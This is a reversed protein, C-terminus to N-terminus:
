EMCGSPMLAQRNEFVDGIEVGPVEGHFPAAVGDVDTNAMASVTAVVSTLVILGTVKPCIEGIHLTVGRRWMPWGPRKRAAIEFTHELRPWGNM